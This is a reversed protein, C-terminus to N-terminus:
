KREEEHTWYDHDHVSSVINEENENPYDLIMEKLVSDYYVTSVKEPVCYQHVWRGLEKNSRMKRVGNEICQTITDGRIIKSKCVFCQMTYNSTLSAM